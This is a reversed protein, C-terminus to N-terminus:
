EAKRFSFNAVKFFYFMCPTFQNCRQDIHGRFYLKYRGMIEGQEYVDSEDQMEDTDKDRSEM